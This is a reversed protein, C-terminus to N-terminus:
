YKLMTLRICNLTTNTEIYRRVNKAKHKYKAESFVMKAKHNYKAEYKLM